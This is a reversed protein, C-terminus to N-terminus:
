WLDASTEVVCSPCFLRGAPGRLSGHALRSRKFYLNHETLQKRSPHGQMGLPRVEQDNPFRTHGRNHSLDIPKGQSSYVLSWAGRDGEIWQYLSNTSLM